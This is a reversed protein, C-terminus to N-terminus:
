CATRTDAPRDGALCRVCQARERTQVLGILWCTPCGRWLAVTVFVSPVLAAPAGIAAAVVGAVLAALGAAGRVWHRRVSRSALPTAPM